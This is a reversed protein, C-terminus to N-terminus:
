LPAVPPIDHVSSNFPEVVAFSVSENGIVLASVINEYMEGCNLRITEARQFFPLLDCKLRFGIGLVASFKAGNIDYGNRLVTAGFDFREKCLAARVSDNPRNRNKTVMFLTKQM